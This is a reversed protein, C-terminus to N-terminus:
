EGDPMIRPRKTSPRVGVYERTNRNKFWDFVDGSGSLNRDVGSYMYMFEGIYRGTTDHRNLTLMGVVLANEFAQHSDRVEM